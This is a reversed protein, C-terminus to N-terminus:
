AADGGGMRARVPADIEPSPHTATATVPRRVTVGLGLCIASTAVACIAAFSWGRDFAALAEGPGPTGLLAILVSVGLVFGIQRSTSAVASGAGFREPPLSAAAASGLTPLTLGVGIGGLM